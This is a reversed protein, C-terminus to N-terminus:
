AVFSPTKSIAWVIRFTDKFLGFIRQFPKQQAGM